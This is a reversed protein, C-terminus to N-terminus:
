VIKKGYKEILLVAIVNLVLGALIAPVGCPIVHFLLWGLFGVLVGMFGSKKNNVSGRILYYALPFVIAPVWINYALILLSVIGKAFMTIFTGLAAVLIIALRSYSLKQEDNITFVKEIIDKRFSVGASNLISDLTSIVVVIMGTLAIGILLEGVINGRFVKFILSLYTLETNHEVSHAMVGIITLLGFWILGFWASKKFARKATNANKSVISRISYVPLFAEGLFFAIGIAIMEKVPMEKTNFVFNTIEISNDNSFFQFCCAILGVILFTIILYFHIKDIKIVTAIGGYFSYLAVFGVIIATTIEVPLETVSALVKGGALGLVGVLAISFFVSLIGTIIQTRNGYASGLIDGVTESDASVNKIKGAFFHGFLWFQVAALGFFITYFFGYDYFMDVAGYSFGPGIMTALITLFIFSEKYDRTGTAFKSATNAEGQKYTGYLKYLVYLVYLAFPIYFVINNM